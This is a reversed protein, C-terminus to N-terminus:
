GQRRRDPLTGVGSIQAARCSEGHVLMEVSYVCVSSVVRGAADFLTFPRYDEDWFGAQEWASLDLGHIEVLFEKFAQRAKRDDWYAERFELDEM